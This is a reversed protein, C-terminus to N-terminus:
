RDGWRDQDFEGDLDHHVCHRKETLAKTIASRAFETQTGNENFYKRITQPTVGFRAAVKGRTMGAKKLEAQIATITDPALGPRRGSHDLFGRTKLRM